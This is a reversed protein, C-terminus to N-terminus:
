FNTSIIKTILKETPYDAIIWGYKKAKKFAYEEVRRNTHKTYGKPSHRSNNASLFNLIIGKEQPPKELIPLIASSWKEKPSLRYMDQLYFTESAEGSLKKIERPIFIDETRSQEYWGSFDLGINKDNYQPNDENAGCRNMFVIKKRVEGLTPIRNEKYWIEEHLFNKFFTDFVDYSSGGDDRKLCFIITESPNESLFRKCDSIVDDIYLKKRSFPAKRCDTISHVTKLKNGTKEVRIDLFRIGSNLQEYISLNQCKSFFKFDIFRACSDHTGPINIDSIKANDSLKKMWQKM